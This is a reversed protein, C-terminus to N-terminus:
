INKSDTPNNMIGLLTLITGLGSVVSNFTTDSLGIQQPLGFASAILWIAGAVGTWLTWSKFRNQTTTM